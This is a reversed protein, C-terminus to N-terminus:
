RFATLSSCNKLCRKVWTHGRSQRYSVAVSGRQIRSAPPLFSKWRVNPQKRLCLSLSLSLSLPALICRCTSLLYIQRPQRQADRRMHSIPKGASLSSVERRNMQEVPLRASSALLCGSVDFCSNLCLLRMELFVDLRFYMGVCLAPSPAMQINPRM